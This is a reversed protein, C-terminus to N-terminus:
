PGHYTCDRETLSHATKTPDYSWFVPRRAPAAGNHTVCLYIRGHAPAVQDRFLECEGWVGMDDWASQPLIVAVNAGNGLGDGVLPYTDTESVYCTAGTLAGFVIALVTPNNGYARQCRATVRAWREEITWTGTPSPIGLVAEWETLLLMAKTPWANYRAQLLWAETMAHGVATAYRYRWHDCAVGLNYVGVGYKHRLAREALTILDEESLGALGDVEEPIWGM